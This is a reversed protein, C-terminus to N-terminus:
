EKKLPMYFILKLGVAQVGDVKPAHEFQYLYYPEFVILRSVKVDAGLALSLRNNPEDNFYLYYEAYFFASFTLYSTKFEKDWTIRPMYKVTVFGTKDVFDFRNRVTVVSKWGPYFRTNSETRLTYEAPTKTDPDPRNYKIGVRFWQYYGRTADLDLATDVKRLHPLAFIDCNLALAGDQYATNAKTASGLAMLRIEKNIKYYADVEPWVEQQNASATTQQAMSVFPIQMCLMVLSLAFGLKACAKIQFERRFHSGNM